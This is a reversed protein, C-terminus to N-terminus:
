EDDSDSVCIPKTEHTSDSVSCDGNQSLASSSNSGKLCNVVSNERSGTPGSRRPDGSSKSRKKKPEDFDSVDDFALDELDMKDEMERRKREEDADDSEDDSIVPRRKKGVSVTKTLAPKVASKSRNGAASTSACSEGGKSHSALSSFHSREKNVIVPKVRVGADGSATPTKGPKAKGNIAPSNSASAPCKTASAKSEFEM